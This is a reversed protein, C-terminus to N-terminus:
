EFMDPHLRREIANWEDRQNERTVLDDSPIRNRLRKEHWTGQASLKGEPNAKVIFEEEGFMAGADRVLLIYRYDVPCIRDTAIVRISDYFCVRDPYDPNRSIEVITLPLNFDLM